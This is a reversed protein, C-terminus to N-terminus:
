ISCVSGWPHRCLMDYATCLRVHIVDHCQFMKLQMWAARYITRDTWWDVVGKEYHNRDDYWWSIKWNQANGSPLELKFECVAIFSSTAYFLNGITIQPCRDFKLILHTSFNVIQSLNWRKQVMVRIQIWPYCHFSVCLKYSCLLPETNNELTMWWIELDCPSFFRCNPELKFTVLGHTKIQIWLNSHFSACHKSACQHLARNSKLTMRWIELDCLGFFRWNSGLKM